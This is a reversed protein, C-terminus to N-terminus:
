LGSAFAKNMKGPLSRLIGIKRLLVDQNYGWETHVELSELVARGFDVHQPDKTPAVTVGCLGKAGCVDMYLFSGGAADLNSIADLIADSGQGVTSIGGAASYKLWQKASWANSTLLRNLAYLGAQTRFESKVRFVLNDAYIQKKLSETLSSLNSKDDSLLTAARMASAAITFHNITQCSMECGNNLRQKQYNAFYPIGLAQVQKWVLANGAQESLMMGFVSTALRQNAIDRFLPHYNSGRAITGFYTGMFQDYAGTTKAMAVVPKMANINFARFNLHYFFDNALAGRSALNIPMDLMTPTINSPNPDFLGGGTNGMVGFESYKEVTQDLDSQLIDALDINLPRGDIALSCNFYRDVKSAISTLATQQRDLLRDLAKDYEKLLQLNRAIPETIELRRNSSKYYNLQEILANTNASWRSAPDILFLVEDSIEGNMGVAGLFVASKLLRRYGRRLTRLSERNAELFESLVSESSNFDLQVNDRGEALLQKLISLEDGIDLAGAVFSCVRSRGDDKLFVTAAPIQTPGPNDTPLALPGGPRYAGDEGMTPLEGYADGGGASTQESSLTQLSAFDSCNQFAVVVAMTGLVVGVWGLRRRSIKM